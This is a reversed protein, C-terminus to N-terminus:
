SLYDFYRSSKEFMNLRVNRFTFVNVALDLLVSLLCIILAFSVEFFYIIYFILKM